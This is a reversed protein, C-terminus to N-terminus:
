HLLSCVHQVMIKPGDMLHWIFSLVICYINQNYKIKCKKLVLLAKWTEFSLYILASSYIGNCGTNGSAAGLFFLEGGITCSWWAVRRQWRAPNPFSGWVDRFNDVSPVALHPCDWFAWPGYPVRFCVSINRAWIGEMSATNGLYKSM